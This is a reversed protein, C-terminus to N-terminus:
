AIVLNDEATEDGIGLVAARVIPELVKEEVAAANTVLSKLVRKAFGVAAQNQCAAVGDGKQTKFHWGVGDIHVNV